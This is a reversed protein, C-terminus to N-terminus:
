GRARMTRDLLTEALTVDSVRDVNVAIEAHSSRAAAVPRGLLASARREAQAITLRGFAYRALVDFGFISALRLPNKRANGLRGLLAELSVFARPRLAALGGGCYTGDRLRAWTHPVGPFAREHISRELCAYVVDADSREALDLFEEIAASTLVPLDSAAILVLDDPAFGGLGARLSAAMTAGAVRVEDAARLETLTAACRPAVAVINGVRPTGRLAELTRRALTIGGVPVFAKNPAGPALASIADRGGGALLV